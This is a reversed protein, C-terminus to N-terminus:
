LRKSLGSQFIIDINNFNTRCWVSACSRVSILCCNWQAWLFPKIKRMLIVMDLGNSFYYELIDQESFLCGETTKLFRLMDHSM